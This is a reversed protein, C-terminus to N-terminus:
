QDLECRARFAERQSAGAESDGLFDPYDGFSQGQTFVKVGPLLVQFPEDLASHKATYVLPGLERLAEFVMVRGGESEGGRLYRWGVIRGEDNLFLDYRDGPTYGDEGRYLVSLRDVEEQALGTVVEGDQAEFDVGSDTLARRSFTLWYQDNIFQRHVEEWEERSKEEESFDERITSLVLEEGELTARRVQGEEINWDWFRAAVAKDDRRVVFCWQLGEIEDFNDIGYFDFLRAKLQEELSDEEQVSEVRLQEEEQLEGSSEFDGGNDCSWLLVIAIPLIRLFDRYISM